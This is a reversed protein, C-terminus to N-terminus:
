FYCPQNRNKKKKGRRERGRQANPNKRGVGVAVNKIASFMEFAKLPGHRKIMDGLPDDGELYSKLGLQSMKNTLENTLSIRFSIVLIKKFPKLFDILRKTKGTGCPSRIVM